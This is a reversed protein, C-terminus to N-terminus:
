GPVALHKEDYGGRVDWTAAPILRLGDVTMKPVLVTEGKRIMERGVLALISSTVSATYANMPSVRAAAFARAYLGAATELAGIAGVDGPLTEGGVALLIGAIVADTFPSNERKEPEPESRSWPFRM